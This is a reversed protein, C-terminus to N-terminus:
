QLLIEAGIHLSNQPLLALTAATCGFTLGLILIFTIGAPLAAWGDLFTL